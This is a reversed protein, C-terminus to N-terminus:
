APTPIATATFQKTMSGIEYVTGPTSPANLEINALGYGAAKVLHGERVVAISAGPIHLDHLQRQFYEDIKDAKAAGSAFLLLLALIARSM